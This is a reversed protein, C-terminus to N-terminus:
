SGFDIETHHIAIEKIFDAPEGVTLKKQIATYDDESTVPFYYVHIKSVNFDGIPLMGVKDLM